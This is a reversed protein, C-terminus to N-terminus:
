EPEYRVEMSTRSGLGRRLLTVLAPEAGSSELSNIAPPDLNWSFEDLSEEVLHEIMFALQDESVEGIEAETDSDFLKIM